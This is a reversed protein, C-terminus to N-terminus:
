PNNSFLQGTCVTPTNATPEISEGFPNAIAKAIRGLHEIQEFMPTTLSELREQSARLGQMANTLPTNKNPNDSM